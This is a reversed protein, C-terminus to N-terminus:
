REYHELIVSANRGGFGFSNKIAYKINIDMAKDPLIM